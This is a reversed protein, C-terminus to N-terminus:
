PEWGELMDIAEGLKNCADVIVSEAGADPVSPPDDFLLRMQHAFARMVERTPMLAARRRQQDAEFEKRRLESEAAEAIKQAALERAREEAVRAAEVAKLRNEAAETAQRAEFLRKREIENELRSQALQRDHEAREKAIEAKMAELEARRIALTKEEAKRVDSLAKEEELRKARLEAEIRNREANAAEEKAKKKADDVALKDVKLPGEVAEVEAILVAAVRDVERGYAISDAKLFKRREEISVRLERCTAIAKVGDKYAAVFSIGRLKDLQASIQEITVPYAVQITTTPVNM